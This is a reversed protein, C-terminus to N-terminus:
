NYLEERSIEKTDKELLEIMEQIIHIEQVTLMSPWSPYKILVAALFKSLTLFRELMDCSNGDTPVCQKLKLIPNDDVYIM